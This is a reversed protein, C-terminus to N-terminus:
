PALGTMGCTGSLYTRIASWSTRTAGAGIAGNTVAANGLGLAARLLLIGDTTARVQGDGDIDPSCGAAISAGGVKCVETLFPGVDIWTRRTADAGIAGQTVTASRWGAAARLLMTADTVADVSGDGDFDLSCSAPLAPRSLATPLPGAGNGLQGFGNHGFCQISGSTLVVCTHVPGAGLDTASSLGSVITASLLVSAANGNEGLTALGWCYVAGTSLRACIYDSSGVLESVTSGVPLGTVTVPSISVTPSTSGSGLQGDSNYGWCKAGGTSLGVCTNNTSAAVSLVGSIGPVVYPLELGGNPSKGIQGSLNQGWCTLENSVGRVVCAHEAGAVVKVADAIAVSSISVAVPVLSGAGSYGLQRAQNAGWCYVAGSSTVACFYNAGGSIDVVNTLGIATVPTSSSATSNNGLEGNANGGWCKVAGGAVVACYANQSAAIRTVGTLGSIAVPTNSQLVSENGPGLQGANNYGWCRVTADNLRACTTGLGGAVQTATTISSVTVPTRSFAVAGDGIQGFANSGWCRVGGGQLISCSHTDGLGMTQTTNVDVVEVVENSALFTGDGLQGTRNGGVCVTYGTSDYFCSHDGATAMGAVGSLVAVPVTSVNGVTVSRYQYSDNLGWCSITGTASRACTHFHGAYLNAMGTLGSTQTPVHTAAPTLLGDGFQGVSRNGWCWITGDTRRVCTHYTGGVVQVANAIGAVLVPVNSYTGSNNGLQGQTNHGWCHVNGGSVVACTHNAGGGISIANSLVSSAPTTSSAFAGQGLQGTGGFGWCRVIGGSLRACTHNDGASLELVGTLGSVATPNSSTTLSGNGLQGRKNLGWCDVTGGTARIACNHFQGAVISSYANPSVAQTTGCWLAVVLVFLTQVLQM